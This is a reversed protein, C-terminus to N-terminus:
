GNMDQAILLELYSRREFRSLSFRGTMIKKMDELTPDLLEKSNIIREIEVFNGLGAVEDLTITYDLLRYISRRKRVVRISKFGLKDLIHETSSRDDISITYEERSKSESGLKPGKYSLEYRSGFETGPYKGPVDVSQVEIARIRLAEDTEGFDRAPHSFYEDVEVQESIHEAGESELKSRVAELDDSYVKLEAELIM